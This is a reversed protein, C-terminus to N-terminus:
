KTSLLWPIQRSIEHRITFDLESHYSKELQLVLKKEAPEFPEIEDVPAENGQIYIEQDTVVM